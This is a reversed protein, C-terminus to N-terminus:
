YGQRSTDLLAWGCTSRMATEKRAFQGGALSGQLLPISDSLQSRRMTQTSGKGAATQGECRKQRHVKARTSGCNEHVLAIVPSNPGRISEAAVPM